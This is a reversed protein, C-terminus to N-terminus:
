VFIIHICACFLASNYLQMVCSCQSVRTTIMDLTQKIETATYNDWELTSNEMNLTINTLSVRIQCVYYLGTILSNLLQHDIITFLGFMSYGTQYHLTSSQSSNILSGVHTLNYNIYLVETYYTVFYEKLRFINNENTVLAKEFEQYLERFKSIEKEHLYPNCARCPLIFYVSILLLFGTVTFHLM